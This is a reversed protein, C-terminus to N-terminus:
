MVAHQSQMAERVLAVSEAHYFAARELDAVTFSARTSSVRDVLSGAREALTGGALQEIEQGPPEPTHARYDRFTEGFRRALKPGSLARDVRSLSARRRGDTVVV